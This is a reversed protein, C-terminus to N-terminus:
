GRKESKKLNKQATRTLMRATREAGSKTGATRNVCGDPGVVVWVRPADRDSGRAPDATLHATTYRGARNVAAESVLRKAM